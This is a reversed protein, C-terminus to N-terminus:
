NTESSLSVKTLHIFTTLGSIMSCQEIQYIPVRYRQMREVFLNRFILLYIIEQMALGRVCIRMMNLGGGLASQVVM